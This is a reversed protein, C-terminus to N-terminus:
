GFRTVAAAVASAGRRSMVITYHNVDPVHTIGVDPWRLAHEAVTGVSYLGPPDDLFGRSAHLFSVPVDIGALAAPLDVASIDAQDAIVAELSACRHMGPPEGVLDYDLYAELEPSWDHAFAPHARFSELYAARDPYTVELGQRIMAVVAETHKLEAPAFPLGGDVLVLGAVAARHRKALVVAIFAGMSHGVVLVPEDAHMRILAAVDDAHAALGFPGPMENSRGRGRLDPALLRRGPLEDAVLQWSVHSGTLGHLLVVTPGAGSWEGTRLDGGAVPM